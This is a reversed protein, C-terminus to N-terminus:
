KVIDKLMRIFVDYSKPLYQKLVKLSEDNTVTASTMEAFAETSLTWEGHKWYSKGHGAGAQVKGATAGEFIDSIETRAMLPIRRLDNTLMDYAISKSYKPEALWRGYQRFFDYNATTIYGNKHLWEYDTAHEKFTKKTTADLFDVLGNVEEKITRPFLGKEYKLSYLSKHSMTGFHKKGALMDIAHGSEHVVVSYPKEWSSGTEGDALNIHIKAQWDCFQRRKTTTSGVGIDDEYHQWAAKLDDPANKDLLDKLNDYHRKGFATALSNTYNYNMVPKPTVNQKSGGAVFTSHWEDYKMSRPVYYVQGAEDRAAREGIGELAEFHPATVSRCWPHFPPATVGAAYEKMPFVQGDMTQCVESTREDLTAVIQYQKVGLANFASQQSVSAFYASETMVLRGAQNRSVGFQKSIADVQKM